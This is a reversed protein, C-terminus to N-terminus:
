SQQVAYRPWFHNRMELTDRDINLTIGGVDHVFEFNEAELLERLRLGPGKVHFACLDMELTMPDPVMAPHNRQARKVIRRILRADAREPVIEHYPINM